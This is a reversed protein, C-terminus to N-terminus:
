SMINESVDLVNFTCAAVRHYTTSQLEVNWPPGSGTSLEGRSVAITTTEGVMYAMRLAAAIKLMRRFDTPFHHHQSMQQYRLIEHEAFCGTPQSVGAGISM